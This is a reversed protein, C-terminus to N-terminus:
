WPVRLVLEIINNNNNDWLLENAASVTTFNAQLKKGRWGDNLGPVVM